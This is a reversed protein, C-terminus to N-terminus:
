AVEKEKDEEVEVFKTFDPMFDMKITGCNGDRNKAIIIDTPIATDEPSQARERHIFIVIDSDQEISGSGKLHALTPREGEAVRNVQVLQIITINYKRCLAQLRGTIDTTRAYETLNQNEHKILGIHDIVFFEVGEKALQRIKNEIWSIEPISNTVDYYQIPLDFLRQMGVQIRRMMSQTELALGHRMYWPKIGTEICLGRETLADALMEFEFVAGKHGNSALGMALQEALSTKGISPRAALSIYGNAGKPIGDLLKDMRKFGSKMGCIEPKEKQAKQMKEMLRMVLEKQSLPKVATNQSTITNLHNDLKGVIDSVNDESIQEAAYALSRKAERAMYLKNLKEAYFVANAGSPINDTLTSLTVMDVKSKDSVTLIDIPQGHSALDVIAEFVQKNRGFVLADGTVAMMVDNVISPDLLMSGLLCDEYDKNAMMNAM